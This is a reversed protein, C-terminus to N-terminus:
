LSASLCRRMGDPAIENSTLRPNWIRVLIWSALLAVICQKNALKWRELMMSDERHFHRPAVPNSGAVDQWDDIEGEPLWWDDGSHKVLQVLTEAGYFLGAPANATLIIGNKALRLRYAQRALAERDKDQAEGVQASGAQGIQEKRVRRPRDEIISVQDATLHLRDALAQPNRTETPVSQTM